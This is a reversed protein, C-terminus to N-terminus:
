SIKKHSMYNSNKHSMYNIQYNNKKTTILGLVNLTNVQL